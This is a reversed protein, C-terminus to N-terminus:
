EALSDEVVWQIVNEIEVESDYYIHMSGGDDSVLILTSTSEGATARTIVGEYTTMDYGAPPTAGSHCSICNNDFIEKIDETYTLNKAVTDPPADNLESCGNLATIMSFILVLSRYKRDATM